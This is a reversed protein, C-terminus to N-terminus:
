AICVYKSQIPEREGGQGLFLDEVVQSLFIEAKLLDRERPRPLRRNHWSTSTDEPHWSKKAAELAKLAKEDLNLSKIYDSNPDKCYEELMMWVNEHTTNLANALDNAMNHSRWRSSDYGGCGFEGMVQWGMDNMIHELMRLACHTQSPGRRTGGYTVFTVCKKLPVGRGWQPAGIDGGVEALYPLNTYNGAGLAALLQREPLAGIVGTGTVVFDYDNIPVFHNVDMARIVDVAFGYHLLVKEFRDVVMKSFNTTTAYLILAKKGSVKGFIDSNMTWM